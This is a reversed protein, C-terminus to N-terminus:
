AGPKWVMLVVALALLLHIVGATATARTARQDLEAVQSPQGATTAAGGAAPAAGALEGMLQNMRRLNPFHAGHMVGLIAIYVLFALSIWAQSFKWTDESVLVLLIGTIPVTYIIWEAFTRVVDYSAEAVAVGEPGRRARAQAGYAMAMFLPGFGAMVGLLHLVLLLKYAGSNVGM